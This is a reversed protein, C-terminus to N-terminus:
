NAAFCGQLMEGFANGNNDCSKGKARETGDENWGSLTLGLKVSGKTGENKATSSM